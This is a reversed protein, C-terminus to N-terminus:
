WALDLAREIAADDYKQKMFNHFTNQKQPKKGDQKKAEAVKDQGIARERAIQLWNLITPEIRTDTRRKAPDTRMVEAMVELERRVDIESFTNQLVAIREPTIIYQKGTSLLVVVSGEVVKRDDIVKRDKLLDPDTHPDPDPDPDPQKAQKPNNETTKPQKSLRETTKEVTRNNKSANKNGEPAGGLKANQRNKECKEQYAANDEDMRRSLHRWATRLTRDDFKPETGSRQYEVMALFLTGVEETDLDSLMEMSELHFIFSSKGM